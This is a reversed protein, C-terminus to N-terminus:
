RSSGTALTGFRPSSSSPKLSSTGFRELGSGFGRTDGTCRMEGSWRSRRTGSWTPDLEALLAEIDRRNGAEIGRKFSEVNEESM